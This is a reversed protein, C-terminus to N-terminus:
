APRRTSTARVFASEVALLSPTKWVPPITDRPAAAHSSGFFPFSVLLALAAPTLPEFM